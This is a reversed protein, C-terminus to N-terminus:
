PSLYPKGACQAKVQDATTLNHASDTYYWDRVPNAAESLDCGGIIGVRSCAGDGYTGQAASCAGQLATLTTPLGDREQCRSEKPRFDCHGTSNLGCSTLFMLAGVFYVRKMM